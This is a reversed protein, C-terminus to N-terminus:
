WSPDDPSEGYFGIAISAALGAAIAVGIGLNRGKVEKVYFLDGPIERNGLFSSPSTHGARILKNVYFSREFVMPKSLLGDERETYLTLYSRFYLPSDAETYEKLYITLQKSDEVPFSTKTFEKKPIQKFPLNSLTLPTNEIRAQPPIVNIGHPFAIGGSFSGQSSSTAPNNYIYTDGQIPAIGEYYSTAVEDIIIASRTWDIYVPEELKNYITIHIPADEGYFNYSIRVSDNEQIFEGTNNRSILHNRDTSDLISYYYSTCGSLSLLLVTLISTYLAIKKM